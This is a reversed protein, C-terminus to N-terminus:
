DGNLTSIFCAGGDGSSPSLVAGENGDVVQNAAHNTDMTPAPPEAASMASFHRVWITIGSPSGNNLVDRATGDNWDPILWGEGGPQVQGNEDCVLVWEAENYGYICLTEPDVGSPCPVFLTLGSPFTRSPKLNIPVGVAKVDPIDIAPVDEVPGFYPTVGGDDSNFIITAGDIAMTDPNKGKVKIKLEKPPVFEAETEPLNLQDELHEAMTETRFRYVESDISSNATDTVYVSVGVVTDFEYPTTFAPDASRDYEVWFKGLATDDDASLPTVKVAADGTKRSYGTVGEEEIYFVVNGPNEIDVGKNAEIRLAVSSDVSIRADDVAIGSDPPPLVEKIALPASTPDNPDSGSSYEQYNTFGDQDM